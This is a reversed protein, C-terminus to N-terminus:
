MLSEILALRLKAYLESARKPTGNVENAYWLGVESGTLWVEESAELEEATLKRRELTLGFQEAVEFVASAMIGPLVRDEPPSILTNGERIMVNSTSTETVSGDQDLLVGLGGAVRDGAILDALYYHLRSRVKIDRPWSASPPQQVNTIVLPQGDRTLRDLRVKDLTTAHICLTPRQEGQLNQTRRGPTAFITIGIDGDQPRQALTQIRLQDVYDALQDSSPLGEIRLEHCSRDFRSLHKKLLVIGSGWTRLREVATASQYFGLDDISLAVDGVSCWRGQFFALHDSM